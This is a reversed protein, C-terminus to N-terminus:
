AGEGNDDHAGDPSIRESDRAAEIMGRKTVWDLGDSWATQVRVDGDSEIVRMLIVAGDVLEGERLTARVGLADIRDGIPVRTDSM